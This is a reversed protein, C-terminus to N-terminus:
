QTIEIVIHGHDLEWHCNPCLAVLNNIHNIESLLADKDFKSVPILHCVEIHKDYGCVACHLSEGCSLYVNRAYFRIKTYRNYYANPYESERLTTNQYKYNEKCINSCYRKRCSVPKDCFKCAHEPKRKPMKSNNYKAACSRSCFKPNKTENGCGDFTCIM